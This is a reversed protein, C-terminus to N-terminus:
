IFALRCLHIKLKKKFTDFTDVSRLDLPLLKIALIKCDGKTKFRSRPVALLSQDSFRLSRSTVYPHIVKDIYWLVQGHFSTFNIALLKFQVRLKIATLFFSDTNYPVKLPGPSLGWPLMLTWNYALWPHNAWSFIYHIIFYLRSSMFAHIVIVM